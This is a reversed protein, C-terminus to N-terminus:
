LHWSTLSPALARPTEGRRHTNAFSPSSANLSVPSRKRALRTSGSSRGSIRGASTLRHPMTCVDILSAPSRKKANDWDTKEELMICVAEMCTKVAPPPSKFGKVEGLDNKTLSDLAKVASNLAPMAVDLDKQADQQVAM